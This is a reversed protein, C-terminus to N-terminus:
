EGNKTGWTGAFINSLAVMPATEARFIRRGLWATQWGRSTLSEIEARSFGGEPGSFLWVNKPDHLGNLRLFAENTNEEFLVLARTKSDPSPLKALLIPKLVEPLVCGGCQLMASIAIKQWREVKADSPKKVVCHQSTVPVIRRVGLEVVKEVMWDFKEGKSVSAFLTVNLSSERNPNTWNEALYSGRPGLIAISENGCGDTIVFNDGERLRMVRELRHRNEKTLIGSLEPEFVRVRAGM